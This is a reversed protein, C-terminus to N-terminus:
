PVLFNMVLNVLARMKDRNQVPNIWDMEGCGVRQPDMKINNELRRRPRELPRKGGRKGVFIRYIHKGM